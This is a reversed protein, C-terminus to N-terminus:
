RLKEVIRGTWKKHRPVKGNVAMNLMGNNLGYQKSFDSLNDTIYVEGDPDILEYLYKVQALKMNRKTEESFIKGTRTESMKKKTEESHKKGWLPHKEGQRAESMKRKTEESRPKGWKPSLEGRQGWAYHKEGRHAESLKRRTEESIVTGSTGEGGDTRNRLIGTGLDIRGYLQICYIELSFAEAETLGEQVFAIYSSDRPAPVTRGCKEFARKGRGKGVYYPSFKPGHESDNSRLWLYVYFRRPDKKTM